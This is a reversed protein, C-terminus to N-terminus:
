CFTFAKDYIMLKSNLNPKSTQAQVPASTILPNALMYTFVMEYYNVYKWDELM